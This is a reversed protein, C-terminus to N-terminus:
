WKVTFSIKFHSRLYFQVFQTDRRLFTQLLSCIELITNLLNLNFNSPSLHKRGPFNLKFKALILIRQRLRDKESNAILHLLHRQTLSNLSLASPYQVNQSWFIRTLKGKISSKSFSKLADRFRIITLFHKFCAWVSM